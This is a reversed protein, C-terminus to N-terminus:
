VKQWFGNRVQERFGSLNFGEIQGINNRTFRLEHPKGYVFFTANEKPLLNKAIGYLNRIDLWGRNLGITVSRNTEAEVYEGPYESLDLEEPVIELELFECINRIPIDSDESIITILLKKLDYDDYVDSGLKQLDHNFQLYLEFGTQPHSLGYATDKLFSKVKKQWAKERFSYVRELASDLDIHTLYILTPDCGSIIKQTERVFDTIRESEAGRELLGGTPCQLFAGDLIFINKQEEIRAILQRWNHLVNEMWDNIGANEEKTVPHLPSFEHIFDPRWGNSAIVRYLKQGTSSKGTGALGELLLLKSNIM